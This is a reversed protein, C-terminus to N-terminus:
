FKTVKMEERIGKENKENYRLSRKRLKIEENSWIVCVYMFLCVPLCFLCENM